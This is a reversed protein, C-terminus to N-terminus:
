MKERPPRSYEEVLKRLREQELREERRRDAEALFWDAYSLLAGAFTYVDDRDFQWVDNGTDRGVSRDQRRIADFAKQRVEQVQAASHREGFLFGRVLGENFANEAVGATGLIETVM